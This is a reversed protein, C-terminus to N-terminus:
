RSKLGLVHDMGYLGPPQGQIWRAADLAGRAFVMRDQAAHGLTLREGRGQFRVEHVGIIEGERHVEYAVTDEGRVGEIVGGLRLATGSPADAKHAHHAEFLEVSWNEPISESTIEVLYSLINVGISMNPAAVVPVQAATAALAADAVDDLGTTGSVLPRGARACAPALEAVLAPRSFDVVVECRELLADLSDTFGERGAQPHGARVLAAGLTCDGSERLAEIVTGGM